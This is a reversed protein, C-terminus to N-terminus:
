GDPPEDAETKIHGTLPPPLEGQAAKHFQYTKLNNYPAKQGKQYNMWYDDFITLGLDAFVGTGNLLRELLRTSGINSTNGSGPVDSAIRYKEQLFFIFDSAASPIASLDNLAYIQPDHTNKTRTYVIGLVYHKHYDRYPRMIGSTQDRRRFYGGYTGLTMGNVRMVGTKDIGTRYTTKLDIAICDQTDHAILTVDPYQNQIQSVLVRYNHDKAFQQIVPIYILEMVKSLVKTDTSLSYIRGDTDIVGKVKWQGQEDVVRGRYTELYPVFIQQFSDM